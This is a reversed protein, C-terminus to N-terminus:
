ANKASFYGAIFPAVLAEFRDGDALNNLLTKIDESRLRRSLKEFRDALDHAADHDPHETHHIAAEVQAADMGTPVRKADEPIIFADIPFENAEPRIGDTARSVDEAFTAEVVGEELVQDWVTETTETIGESTAPNGSLVRDAAPTRFPPALPVSKATATVVTWRTIAPPFPVAAARKNKNSLEAGNM